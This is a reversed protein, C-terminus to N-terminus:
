LSKFELTSFKHYFGFKKYFAFVEENGAAVVIKRTVINNSDFWEIAFNLLKEAIGNGRFDPQVLLSDIEGEPAPEYVITNICYGVPEKTIPNLALDIRMKGHELKKLLDAKRSNFSMKEYRIKFDISKKQHHERLVEWLPRVKDLDSEDTSVFEFSTM